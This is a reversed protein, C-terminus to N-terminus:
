VCLYKLDFTYYEYLTKMYNYLLIDINLTNKIICYYFIYNKYKILFILIQTM